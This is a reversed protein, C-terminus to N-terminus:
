QRTGIFTFTDTRIYQPPIAWYLTSDWITYKVTLKQYDESLYGVGMPRYCYGGELTTGPFYFGEAGPIISMSYNNFMYEKTAYNWGRPIIPTGKPLNRLIYISDAYVPITDMGMYPPEASILVEITFEDEPTHIHNGKYRGLIPMRRWDAVEIEKTVTDIGDDNPDCVLSPTGKAILTILLKGYPYGGFTVKADRGTRPEVEQGIWWEYHDAEHNATLFLTFGPNLTQHIEMNDPWVWSGEEMTFEASIVPNLMCPDYNDCEPNTPDDCNKCGSWCMLCLGVLLLLFYKYTKM